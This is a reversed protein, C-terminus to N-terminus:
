RKTGLFFVAITGPGSHAGIVPGICGVKVDVPNFKAKLTEALANAEDECDGHCIFMTQTEPSVVTEEMAKVLGDIAGKRGRAKGISILHGEDDVHLLPKIALMSGVVATAASVRGGRKLFFLDDVTFHHCLHLKNEEVWDRVEEITKGENKMQNAIYVIMAQGLSACLTDVAYFKRDPYEESIESCALRGTSSTSSLGSSFGLYLVDLGENAAETFYKTFDELNAASTTAKAKNRLAAYFEKLDVQDGPRPEGDDMAYSLPVVRVGWEAAVSPTIDSGSDTIIIYENAM